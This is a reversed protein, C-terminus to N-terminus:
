NGSPTSAIFAKGIASFVPTGAKCISSLTSGPLIGSSKTSTFKYLPELSLTSGPLVGFSKTSTFKFFPEFPEQSFTLEGVRKSLPIALNPALGCLFSLFGNKPPPLFSLVM